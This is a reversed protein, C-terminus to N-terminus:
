RFANIASDVFSSNGVLLDGGFVGFGAPALAIGWPSALPGGSILRQVFTGNENFVDVFGQGATANIQNAQGAPAYTVYVKGGIDQVNFPVFGAFNGSTSVPAFASNFVSVGGPGSGNAAYLLTQSSNIALGTYIAGPTTQQVFSSATGNWASISGNLSAFIFKASAGNGGGGVLFSSSNGNFVQGTPAQGQISVVLSQKTATAGSVSYLTAVNAAEDSVWIPSTSSFSVGWPNLLSPDTTNALGPIDSV